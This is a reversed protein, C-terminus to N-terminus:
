IQYGFQLFFTNASAEYKGSLDGRGEAESYQSEKLNLKIEDIMFHAVAADVRWNDEGYGAGLSLITRDGDASRPSRLDDPTPTPDTAVGFRLSLNENMRYEGGLSMSLTDEWELKALVNREIDKYKIDLVDMCSWRTYTLNGFITLDPTALYSTGLMIVEPMAIDLEASYKEGPIVGSLRIGQTAMTSKGTLDIDGDTKHTMESRYSFGIRLEPTPDYTVGFVYGYTLSDGEYNALIDAAADGQKTAGEVVAKEAAEAGIQSSLAEYNTKMVAAAGTLNEYASPDTARNALADKFSKAASGIGNSAGGITGDGKQVQVGFGITWQSNIKYSTALDMNVVIFKTETGHYRGAWDDGYDTDTAFPVTINWGFNIKDNIPHVGSITPITADPTINNVNTHPDNADEGTFPITRKADKFKLEPVIHAAGFTFSHKEFSGILAPNSFILSPDKGTAEAAYGTGLSHASQYRRGFGSGFAQTSALGVGVILAIQRQLAKNKM